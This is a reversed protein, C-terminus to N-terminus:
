LVEQTVSVLVGATSPAFATAPFSNFRLDNSSSATCLQINDGADLSIDIEYNFTGIDDTATIFDRRTTGPVDSGNKRIWLYCIGKTGTTDLQISTNIKYFGSQDVVIESSTTGLGVGNSIQTENLQIVYATDSSSFTFSTTRAFRGYSYKQEITPRVFIEGNTSDVKVVAAIPIVNSPATPKIKTLQGEITPHVYLIDGINWTETVISGTTNLDRVKGFVTVFGENGDEIDQTLVGVAYLSPFTGDALFPAVFLRADTDGNGAGAFRVVTGNTITSGTENKVLFYTEQGIQQTVGGPHHINLTRDRINWDLLGPTTSVGVHEPDFLLSQIPGLDSDPVNIVSIVNDDNQQEIQTTYDDDLIASGLFKGTSNDYKVYYNDQNVSDRNVDDLFEFRVEGGGGLTSLQQQIRDIFIKYHKQLDDFTAFKQNLPTLPDSNNTKIPEALLGLSKQILTPEGFSTNEEKIEKLDSYFKQKEIKNKKPSVTEELPKAFLDDFSDSILSELEKKNKKKEESVLKFFDSLDSM